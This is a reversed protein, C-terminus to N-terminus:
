DGPDKEPGAPTAQLNANVTAQNALMQWAQAMEILFVKLRADTTNRAEELCRVAFRHYKATTTM